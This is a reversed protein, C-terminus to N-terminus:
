IDSMSLPIYVDENNDGKMKAKIYTTTKMPRYGDRIIKVGEKLKEDGLEDAKKELDLIRNARLQGGKNPKMMENLFSVLKASDEDKALSKMWEKVISVGVDVTEDWRDVVNSGLIISQSGDSCTFTHSQQSEHDGYIEAKLELLTKFDDFIQKKLATLIASVEQLKVFNVTVLENKLTEYKSRAEKKKEEAAKQEAILQDRLASKQEPSLKNLDITEMKTM